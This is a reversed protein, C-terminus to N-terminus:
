KILHLDGVQKSKAYGNTTNGRQLRIEKSSVTELNCCHRKVKDVLPLLYDDILVIVLIRVSSSFGGGKSGGRGLNYDEEEQSEPDYGADEHNDIAVCNPIFLSYSLSFTIRCVPPM